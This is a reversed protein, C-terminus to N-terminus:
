LSNYFIIELIGRLTLMHKIKIFLVTYFYKSNICGIYTLIRLIPYQEYLQPHISILNSM